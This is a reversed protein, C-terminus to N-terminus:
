EFIAKWPWMALDWSTDPAEVDGAVEDVHPNRNEPRSASSFALGPSLAVITRHPTLKAWRQWLGGYGRNAPPPEHLTM